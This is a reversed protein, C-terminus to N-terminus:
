FLCLFNYTINLFIIKNLLWNCQYFDYFCVSLCPIHMRYLIRGNRHLKKTQNSEKCGMLLRETIYRHTKRPPVLVLSPNIHRAWPCLATVGTLSMETYCRKFSPTDIDFDKQDLTIRTGVNFLGKGPPYNKMWVTQIWILGSM